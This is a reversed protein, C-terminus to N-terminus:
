KSFLGKLKGLLGGIVGGAAQGAGDNGGGTFQNLMGQLDFGGAQGGGTLSGLIGKLDFSSDNPDNTKHVLQKLVDPVLGGAINGAQSQDLGFKQVLQDVVNGQIQQTLGSAAEPNNGKFMSVLDSINGGSIANKLGDFISGSAASIAEDNRENPIAPNNVIVNGAHQKVLDILNELM